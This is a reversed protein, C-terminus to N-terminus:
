SLLFLRDWVPEVDTAAALLVLATGPAGDLLGPQDVRRGFHEVSRFGLLTEPEYLSLLQDSLDLAADRFLTLGTDHAFRLTIQLLGAVGHCFTPSDIQREAVPKQYIAEMAEVALTSYAPRNIAQGALWLSRAVGPSGYCWATRSAGLSWESDADDDFTEVLKGEGDGSQVLPVAIPWTTGWEDRLQHQVLWAALRDIAEALGNLKVGASHALALLALPGPIGHALGCNLNGDPYQELMLDDFMLRAPTHWRPLGDEEASMEVLSVLVRKLAAAAGPQERRCLLYAGAGALGSIVDFHSLPVGQKSQALEEAINDTEPFLAEEVAALMRRYRTGGRSLYWTAFALGSLGSFLSAPLFDRQEAGRAAWELHHHGVRDWGEDKFCADLYGWLISLGAYGQAVGHPLWRVGLPYATQKEAAAVAAEIQSRERLRSAVTRAMSLAARAKEPELVRQWAPRERGEPHNETLFALAEANM